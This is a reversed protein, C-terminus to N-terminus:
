PAAPAAPKPIKALLSALGAQLSSLTAAELPVLVADVSAPLLANVEEEAAPILEVAIVQLVSAELDGLVKALAPSM